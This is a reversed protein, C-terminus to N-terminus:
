QHRYADYGGGEYYFGQHAIDKASLFSTLQLWWNFM